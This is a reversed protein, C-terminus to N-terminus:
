MYIGGNVALDAGTMFGSRESALFAISWAIEEPKALRGVPIQEIIKQRIPEPVSMVMRSEVYGPSISNVTIGHKAVEQALSKTFGYVGAKASAYNTQGFQGKEGNVSSINIIRGFGREIMGNIFQRTVNFMSDLDTHVVQTWQEPTMKRLTADNITGAANVLIDVPGVRAEVDKAMAACSEFQTVDMNALFIDYGLKKQEAQWRLAKDKDVCDAAIVIAGNKLFEHCIATGIDGLGGTILAIRNKMTM